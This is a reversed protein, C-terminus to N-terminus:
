VKLGWAFGEMVSKKESGGAFDVMANLLKLSTLILDAQAGGIYANLRRM